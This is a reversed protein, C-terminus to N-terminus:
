RRATIRCVAEAALRLPATIRWSRSALLSELQGDREALQADREALQADREALVQNLREANLVGLPDLEGTLRVFEIPDFFLTKNTSPSNLIEFLIQLAFQVAFQHPKIDLMAMALAYRVSTADKSSYKKAEPFIKIVEELNKIQLYNSHLILPFEFHWRIRTEPRNGSTNAENDRVRFRVMKEPFVHIDYKMTLRIWMDFDGLQALGMRYPGCDNYCSKRVLASPHCLANGKIFFFRLWDFRSKNPQSFINYYLHQTDRLPQSNEDIALANTFVAGINAYSDLFKVQAALKEIEWVDDSHHIAIYEGQAVESIAKNIGYIGRKQTDNRFTKIRTDKYSQIIEWSDDTSADDWIILEFDTYTQNLASDIAERLYKAHNFSTLIISVKPMQLDKLIRDTIFNSRDMM